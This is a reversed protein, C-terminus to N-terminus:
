EGGCNIGGKWFAINGGARGKFKNGSFSIKHYYFEEDSVKGNNEKKEIIKQQVEKKEM